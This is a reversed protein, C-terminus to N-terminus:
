AASEAEAAIHELVRLHITHILWDSWLTWYVRPYLELRYWTSGELRTRGDALPVLRFEGRESRMGATLHPADLERYPSWEEMSPPQAVVDFSLRHPEEWRTIPEVFAGTSFECYRVAGVGSGVLSARQPYAIGTRFIWRSPPPLDSFSVVHEWVVGPPADIEVSTAVERLPARRGEGEVGALLPALAGILVLHAWRLDTTRTCFRGLICGLAALGAALPYAMIVCLVGEFAVAVFGIGTLVVGLQAAFHTDAASRRHRANLVGAAVFGMVFPTVLFLAWGYSAFTKVAVWFAAAGIAVSSAAATALEARSVAGYLGSRHQPCAAGTGEARRTVAAGEAARELAM